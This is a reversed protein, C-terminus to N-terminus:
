GPILPSTGAGAGVFGVLIIGIGLGLLFYTTLSRDGRWHALYGGISTGFGILTVGSVVQNSFAYAVFFSFLSYVAGSVGMGVVTGLLFTNRANV